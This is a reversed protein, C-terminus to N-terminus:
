DVEGHWESWKGQLGAWFPWISRWGNDQMEPHNTQHLTLDAPFSHVRYSKMNVENDSWAMENWWGHGCALFWASTGVCAKDLRESDDQTITASDPVMLGCGFACGHYELLFGCGGVFGFLFDLFAFSFTSRILSVKIQTRKFDKLVPVKNNQLMEVKHNVSLTNQLKICFRNSVWLHNLLNMCDLAAWAAFTQFKFRCIRRGVLLLSSTLKVGLAHEINNMNHQYTSWCINGWVKLVCSLNWSWSILRWCENLCIKWCPSRLKGPIEPSPKWPLTTTFSTPRWLSCIAFYDSLPFNIFSNQSEWAKCWLTSIILFHKSM